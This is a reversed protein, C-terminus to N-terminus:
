YDEDMDDDLDSETVVVKRNSKRKKGKSSKENMKEQQNWFKDKSYEILSAFNISISKTLEDAATKLCEDYQIILKFFEPYIQIMKEVVPIADNVTLQNKNKRSGGAATTKSKENSSQAMPEDEAYDEGGGGDAKSLKTKSEGRKECIIRFIYLLDKFTNIGNVNNKFKKKELKEKLLIVQKLLLLLHVENLDHINQVFFQYLERRQERKDDGNLLLLHTDIEDLPFVGFNEPQIFNNFLFVSEIFCTYLLNQNKDNTYSLIAAQSKLQIMENKDVLCALLNLLVRGKMKIFDQMTLDYINKLACIRVDESKSHLKYIIEKFVPAVTSTHKKCLDNLCQMSTKIVSINVNKRLLSALDPTLDAALENDRLAFRTLAVIIVNLKRPIDNQASVPLQNNVIKRLFGFFMDLVTKDPRCLLDTNTECFILIFSLLRENSESLHYTSFNEVIAKKSLQNLQKVFRENDKTDGLSARTLSCIEYLHSVMSIPCEGNELVATMKTAMQTRSSVSFTAIWNRIVELILHFDITDYNEEELYDLFTVVVIDPNNSKMKKAILSLICWAETKNATFIHTEIKRLKEQTLFNNTVADIANQLIGRKQKAMIMKVVTWPLIQLDSVTNEFSEIKQFVETLSKIAADVIKNENDRILNIIVDLWMEVANNNKPHDKLITNVLELLQM